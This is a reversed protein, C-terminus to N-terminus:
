TPAREAAIARAVAGVNGPTIGAVNIRSDSMMYIHHRERLAQVAGPALGLMSFMGRQEAIFDYSDTDTTLRLQSALLVRMAALRRQM